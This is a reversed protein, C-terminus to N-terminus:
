VTIFIRAPFPYIGLIIRSFRHHIPSFLSFARSTPFHFRWPDVTGFQNIFTNMAAATKSLSPNSSSRDLCSCLVYNFDGGLLWSLILSILSLLSFYTSLTVTMGTPLICMLLSSLSIWFSVPLLSSGEVQIQLKKTAKLPLAKTYWFPQLRLISCLISSKAGGVGRLEWLM